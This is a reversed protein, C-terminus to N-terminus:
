TVKFIRNAFLFEQKQSDAHEVCVYRQKGRSKTKRVIFGRYISMQAITSDGHTSVSVCKDGPFIKQDLKDTFPRKNVYKKM